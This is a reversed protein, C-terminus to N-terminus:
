LEGPDHLDPCLITIGAWAALMKRANEGGGFDEENCYRVDHYIHTFRGEEHPKYWDDTSQRYSIDIYTSLEDDVLLQAGKERQKRIAYFLTIDTENYLIPDIQDVDILGSMLATTDGNMYILKIFNLYVYIFLATKIVISTMGGAVTQHSNGEENFNMTIVHGFM